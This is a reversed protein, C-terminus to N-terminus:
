RGGLMANNSRRRIARQRQAWISDGEEFEDGDSEEQNNSRGEDVTKTNAIYTTNRVTDEERSARSSLNDALRGRMLMRERELVGKMTDRVKEM